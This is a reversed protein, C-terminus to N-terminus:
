GANQGTGSPSEEGQQWSAIAVAAAPFSHILKEFFIDAVMRAFGPFREGDCVTGPNM